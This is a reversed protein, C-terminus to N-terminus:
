LDLVTEDPGTATFTQEYAPLVYSRIKRGGVKRRGQIVGAAKLATGVEKTNKAQAGYGDKTLQRALEDFTFEPGLTSRFHGSTVAEIIYTHLPHQSESIIRKKAETM